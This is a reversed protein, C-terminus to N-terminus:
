RLVKTLGLAKDHQYVLESLKEFLLASIKKEGPMTAASWVLYFDPYYIERKYGYKTIDLKVVKITHKASPPVVQSIISAIEKENEKSIDDFSFMVRSHSPELRSQIITAKM